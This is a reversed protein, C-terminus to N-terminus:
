PQKILTNSVHVFTRQRPFPRAAQFYNANFGNAVGTSVNLFVTVTLNKLPTKKADSFILSGPRGDGVLPITRGLLTLSRLDSSITFSTSTNDAPAGDPLLLPSDLMDLTVNYTGATGAAGLIFPDTIIDKFDFGGFVAPDTSVLPPVTGFGNAIPSTDGALLQFMVGYFSVTRKIIKPKAPFPPTITDEINKITLTVLGTKPDVKATLFKAWEAPFFAGPSGAAGEAVRLTNNSNLGFKKPLWKAHKVADMVNELGLSFVETADIGLADAVSLKAAPPVWQMLTLFVDLPGFGPRFAKDKSNAAKAWKTWAADGDAVFWRSDARQTLQFSTAFYGIGVTYPTLLLCYRGDASSKMSGTISTGDALKGAVKMEGSTGVVGSVYGAGSPVNSGAPLADSFTGTYIGIWPCDNKKPVFTVVKFAAGSLQEFASISPLTQLSLTGSAAFTGDNKINLALNLSQAPASKTAAKQVLTANGTAETSGGNPTLTMTFAYTKKDILILKGSAKGTPLTAFEIRGFPTGEPGGPVQLMGQYNGVLPSPLVPATASHTVPASFLGVLLGAVHLFPSNVRM